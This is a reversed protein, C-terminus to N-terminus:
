ISDIFYMETDSSLTFIEFSDVDTLEEIHYYNM